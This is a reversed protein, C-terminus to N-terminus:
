PPARRNILLDLVATATAMGATRKREAEKTGVTAMITEAKEMQETAGAENNNDAGGMDNSNTEKGRDGGGRGNGTADKTEDGQIVTSKGSYTTTRTRYSARSLHVPNGGDTRGAEDSGGGILSGRITVPSKRTGDRTESGGPLAFPAM